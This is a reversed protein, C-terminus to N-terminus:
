LRISFDPILNCIDPDDIINKVIYEIIGQWYECFPDKKYISKEKLYSNAPCGGMCISQLACDRCDDVNKTSRKNFMKFVKKKKIDILNIKRINGFSMKNEYSFPGCPYIEGDTNIFIMSQGVGCSTNNTIYNANIGLFNWFWIQFNPISVFQGKRLRELWLDFILKSFEVMKETRPIIHDSTNLCNTFDPYIPLISVDNIKNKYIYDLVKKANNVNAQTLVALCSIHNNPLYKRVQKLKKDLVESIPTGDAFRRNIGNIEPPGDVSIGLHINYLLCFKLIDDTILTGNTQIRLDIKKLDKKSFSELVSKIKTFFLLPEGGHFQVVVREKILKAHEIAREVGLFMIVDPMTKEKKYQEKYRSCYRCRLNCSETTNLVVTTFFSRADFKKATKKPQKNFFIDWDKQSFNKVELSKTLFTENTKKNYVVLYGPVIEKCIISEKM